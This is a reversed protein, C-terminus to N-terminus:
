TGGIGLAGRIKRDAAAADTNFAVTTAGAVDITRAPGAILQCSLAIDAGVAAAQVAVTEVALGALRPMAGRWLRRAGRDFVAGGILDTLVIHARSPIRVFRAAYGGVARDIVLTVAQAVGAAFAAQRIGETRLARIPRLAIDEIIAHARAHAVTMGLASKVERFARGAEDTVGAAATEAHRRARGVRVASAAQNALASFTLRAGCVGLAINPLDAGGAGADIVRAAVIDLARGVEAGSVIAVGDRGGTAETAGRAPAAAVDRVAISARRPLGAVRERV